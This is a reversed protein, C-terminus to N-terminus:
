KSFPKFLCKRDGEFLILRKAVRENQSNERKRDGYMTMM